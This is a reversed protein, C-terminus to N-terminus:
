APTLVVIDVGDHKLAAAAAPASAQILTRIAGRTIHGMFSFHRHNVSGIEGFQRLWQLRELPFVINIDRDADAHDYYNHTITLESVPTDAAIERLSPDGDPRRMDFPTQALGHVGGTTILAVRSHTVPQRLPTWPTDAFSLIDAKGAWRELLRPHRTFMRALFRDKISKIETKIDIPADKQQNGPFFIVCGKTGSLLSSGALFFRAATNAAARLCWATQRYIPRDGAAAEAAVMATAAAVGM